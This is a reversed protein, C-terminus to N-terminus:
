VGLQKCRLWADIDSENWVVTRPGLHFHAPFDGQKILRYLQSRSVGVKDLVGAIRLARTQTPKSPEM